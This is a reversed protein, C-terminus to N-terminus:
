LKSYEKTLLIASIVFVTELLKAEFFTLSVSKENWLLMLAIILACIAAVILLIKTGIM